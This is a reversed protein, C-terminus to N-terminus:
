NPLYATSRYRMVSNKTSKFLIKYNEDPIFKSGSTSGPSISDTLIKLNNKDTFGGLKYVLQTTISKMKDYYFTVPDLGKSILYNVVYPQYGTTTYRTTVGTTKDTSTELHYKATALQTRINTETSVVNGSVNNKLRSPDFFVTFFKDLAFDTM